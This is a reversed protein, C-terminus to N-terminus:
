SMYLANCKSYVSIFCWNGEEHVNFALEGHWAAGMGNGHREGAMGHRMLECMGHRAGTM